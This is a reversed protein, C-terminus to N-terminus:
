PAARRRVLFLERRYRFGPRRLNAAADPRANGVAVLRDLVPPERAAGAGGRAPSRDDPYAGAPLHNSRLSSSGGGGLRRPRRYRGRRRDEEVHREDGRLPSALLLLPRLAPREGAAPM